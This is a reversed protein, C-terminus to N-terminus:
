RAPWAPKHALWCLDKMLGTETLVRLRGNRNDLVSLRSRYVPGSEGIALGTGEPNWALWGIAWETPHIRQQKFEPLSVIIVSRERVFALSRGDPSARPLVGPAILRTAGSQLDVMAVQEQGKQRAVYFLVRGDASWDPPVVTLETALVRFGTFANPSGTEAVAPLVPFVVLRAGAFGSPPLDVRGPVMLAAVMSKDPSLVPYYLAAGEVFGIEHVKNDALKLEVLVQRNGGFNRLGTISLGQPGARLFSLEVQQPARHSVTPGGDAPMVQYPFGDLAGPGAGRFLMFGALLADIM